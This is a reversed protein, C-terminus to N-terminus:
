CNKRIIWPFAFVYKVNLYSLQVTDHLHVNFISRKEAFNRVVHGSLRDLNTSNLFFDVSRCM